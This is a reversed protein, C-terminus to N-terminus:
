IEVWAELQKAIHVEMRAKLMYIDMNSSSEKADQTYRHIDLLQTLTVGVRYGRMQGYYDSGLLEIM